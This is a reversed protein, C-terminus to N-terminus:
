TPNTSSLVYFNLSPARKQLSKKFDQVRPNIGMKLNLVAMENYNMMLGQSPSLVCDVAGGNVSTSTKLLLITIFTAAIALSQSMVKM